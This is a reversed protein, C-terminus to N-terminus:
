SVFIIIFNSIFFLCAFSTLFRVTIYINIEYFPQRPYEMAAAM